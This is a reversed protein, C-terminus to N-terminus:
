IRPPPVTGDSPAAPVTEPPATAPPPAQPEGPATVAPPPPPVSPMPLPVPPDTRPTTTGTPGGGGGGLGGNGTGAPPSQSSDKGPVTTAPPLTSGPPVTTVPPLTTAPPTTTGPPVTTVVPPPTTPHPGPPQTTPTPNPAPPPIDTGPNGCGVNIWKTFDLGKSLDAYDVPSTLGVQITPTRDIFRECRNDGGVHSHRTNLVGDKRVIPMKDVLDKAYINGATVWARIDADTVKSDVSNAVIFWLATGNSGQAPTELAVNQKVQNEMTWGTVKAVCDPYWPQQEPQLALAQMAAWTPTKALVAPAAPTSTALVVPNLPDGGTVVPLVTYDGNILVATTDGSPDAAATAPDTSTTAADTAPPATDGPATTAESGTTAPETAPTTVVTAAPQADPRCVVSGDVYTHIVSSGLPCAKQAVGLQKPIFDHKSEDLKYSDVKGANTGSWSGHQVWVSLFVALIALIALVVERIRLFRWLFYTVLFIILIVWVWGLSLPRFIFWRNNRLVFHRSLSWGLAAATAIGSGSVSAARPPRAQITFLKAAVKAFVWVIVISVLGLIMHLVTHM